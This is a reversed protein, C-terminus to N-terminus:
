ARRAPVSPAYALPVASDVIVVLHLATWGKSDRATTPDGGAQAFKRLISEASEATGVMAILRQFEKEFNPRFSSIRKAGQLDFQRNTRLSVFLRVSNREIIPPRFYNPTTSCLSL